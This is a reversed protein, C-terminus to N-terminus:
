WYSTGRATSSCAAQIDTAIQPDDEVVLVTNTAPVGVDVAGIVLAGTSRGTRLGTAVRCLREPMTRGFTTCVLRVVTVFRPVIAPRSARMSALEDAGM